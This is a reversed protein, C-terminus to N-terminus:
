KQKDKHKVHTITSIVNQSFFLRHLYWHAPVILQLDLFSHCYLIWFFYSLLVFLSRGFVVDFVLSQAVCYECVEERTLINIVKTKFKFMLHKREKLFRDPFACLRLRLLLHHRPHFMYSADLTWSKKKTSLSLCHSWRWSTNALNWSIPCNYWFFMIKRM